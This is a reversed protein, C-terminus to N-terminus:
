ISPLHEYADIQALTLRDAIHKLASVQVLIGCSRKSIIAWFLEDASDARIKRKDDSLARDLMDNGTNGPLFLAFLIMASQYDGFGAGSELIAIRESTQNCNLAAKTWHDDAPDIVDEKPIEKDFVFTTPLLDPLFPIAEASGLHAYQTIDLDIAAPRPCPTIPATPAASPLATKAPRVSALPTATPVPVGRSSSQAPVATTSYALLLIFGVAIRLMM